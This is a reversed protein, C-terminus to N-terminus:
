SSGCQCVNAIIFLIYLLIYYLYYIIRCDSDKLNKHHILEM